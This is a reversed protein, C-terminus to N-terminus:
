FENCVAVNFASLVCKHSFTDISYMTKASTLSSGLVVGGSSSVEVDTIISNTVVLLAIVSEGVVSSIISSTVIVSDASTIVVGGSILISDEVITSPEVMADVVRTAVSAGVVETEVSSNVVCFISISAGDVVTAM